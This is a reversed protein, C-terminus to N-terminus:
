SATHGVPYPLVVGPASGTDVDRSPREPWLLAVIDATPIRIVRGIRLVRTHTWTGRRIQEYISWESVGIIEAVTPIVTTGGLAEVRARTWVPHRTTM